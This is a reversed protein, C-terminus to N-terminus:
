YVFRKTEYPAGDLRHCLVFPVGHAGAREALASALQEAAIALAKAIAHERADKAICMIGVDDIEATAAIVELDSSCCRNRRDAILERTGGFRGGRGLM